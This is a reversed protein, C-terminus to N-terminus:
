KANLMLAVYVWVLILANTILVLYHKVVILILLVNPGAHYTRTAMINNVAFV